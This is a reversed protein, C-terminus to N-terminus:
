GYNKAIPNAALGFPGHALPQVLDSLHGFGFPTTPLEIGLQLMTERNPLFSIGEGCRNTNAVLSRNTGAPPVKLVIEALSLWQDCGTSTSETWQHAAGIPTPLTYSPPPWAGRTDGGRFILYFLLLLCRSALLRNRGNMPLTISLPNQPCAPPSHHLPFIHTM